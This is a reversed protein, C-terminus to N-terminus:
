LIYTVTSNIEKNLEKLKRTIKKQKQLLGQLGQKM